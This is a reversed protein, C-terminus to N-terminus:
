HVPLVMRLGGSSGSISIYYRVGCGNSGNGRMIRTGSMYSGDDGPGIPDIAPTTDVFTWGRDNCWDSGNGIMDYLGYANPLADAVSWYGSTIAFKDIYTTADGWYYRAPSGARASYEWEAETPLRYGNKSYDISWDKTDYVPDLGAMLSKANAYLCAGWWTVDIMPYNQSAVSNFAKKTESWNLYRDSSGVLSTITALLHVEGGLSYVGRSGTTQNTRVEAYGNAVAWTMVKAYENVTVGTSDMYWDYSFSVRHQPMADHDYKQVSDQKRLGLLFSRNRAPIPKMGSTYKRYDGLALAGALSVGAPGPVVESGLAGTTDLIELLGSAQWAWLPQKDLVIGKWSYLITDVTVSDGFSRFAAGDAGASSTRAASFGGSASIAPDQRHGGIDHGQWSLRLRGGERVLHGGSVPMTLAGSRRAIGVVADGSMKWTGGTGSQASLGSRSLRIGVGSLAKGDADKVTGDLSVSVTGCFPAGCLLLLSLPLFKRNM